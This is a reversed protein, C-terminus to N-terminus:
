SICLKMIIFCGQIELNNAIQCSEKYKKTNSIIETGLFQLCFFTMFSSKGCVSLSNFPRDTTPIVIDLPSQM